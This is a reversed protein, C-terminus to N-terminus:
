GSRKWDVMTRTLEASANAFTGGADMSRRAEDIRAGKIEGIVSAVSSHFSAHLRRAAQFHHDDKLKPEMAILWKGFDCGDDRGVRTPDPVDGGNISARLRVKWGAHAALGADIQTQLAKDM